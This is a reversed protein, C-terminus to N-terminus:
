SPGVMRIEWAGNGYYGTNVIGQYNGTGGTRKFFLSVTFQDGFVFGSFADVLIRSSGDFSAARGEGNAGEAYTETGEWVGNRGNGSSDNATDDDFSYYAELSGVIFYDKRSCDDLM